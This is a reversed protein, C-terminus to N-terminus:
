GNKIKRQPPIMVPKSMSGGAMTWGALLLEHIQRVTRHVYDPERQAAACWDCIYRDCAACWARERTRAPNMVVCGGCHECGLTPAEYVSGERLSNGPIGMAECMPAPLGPSARHDIFLYGEHSRKSFTM